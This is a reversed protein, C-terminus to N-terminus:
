GRRLAQRVRRHLGDAHERAAYGIFAPILPLRSRTSASSGAIEWVKLLSIERQLYRAWGDRNTFRTLAEAHPIHEAVSRHALVEPVHSFPGLLSMECSFIFDGFRYPRILGTEAMAARRALSYVPDVGFWDAQEILRLFEILRKVADAARVGPLRN